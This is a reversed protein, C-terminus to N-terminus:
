TQDAQLSQCYGRDLMPCGPSYRRQEPSKLLRLNNGESPSQYCPLDTERCPCNIRDRKNPYPRFRTHCVRWPACGPINSWCGSPPSTRCYTGHRCILETSYQTHSHLQETRVSLTQNKGHMPHNFYNWNRVTIPLRHDNTAPSSLSLHIHTVLTITLARIAAVTIPASGANTLLNVWSGM